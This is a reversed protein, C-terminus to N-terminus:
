AKSDFMSKGAAQRKNGAPRSYNTQESQPQLMSLNMNVFQLSQYVLKQNLENQNKLKVTLELLEKKKEKFEKQVAEDAHEIVQALSPSETHIGKQLLFEAALKQRQMELTNIASIHNQEKKIFDNLAETDGKKIFDTKELSLDYLSRHLTYIKELTSLLQEAQM